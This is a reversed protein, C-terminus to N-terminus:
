DKWGVLGEMGTTLEVEGEVVKAAVLGEMGIALVILM